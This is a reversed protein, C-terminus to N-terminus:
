GQAPPQLHVLRFSPVTPRRHTARVRRDHLRLDLRATGATSRLSTFFRAGSRRRGACRSRGTSTLPSLLLGITSLSHGILGGPFLKCLFDFPLHIAFAAIVYKASRSM